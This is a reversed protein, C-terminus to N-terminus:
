GKKQKIMKRYEDLNKPGQDNMMMRVQDESMGTRKMFQVAEPTMPAPGKMDSPSDTIVTRKAQSRKAIERQEAERKLQQALNQGGLAYYAQQVTINPNRSIFETIPVKMQKIGPYDSSDALDNIQVTVRLQHMEKQQQQQQMYWQTQQEDWGNQYALREAEQQIKQQELHKMAEQPDVGLQDFFAKYPNMQTDFEQKLKEEAAERAKRKERELAKQFATKQNEPLEIHEEEYEVNSPEPEDETFEQNGTHELSDVQEQSPESGGEQEHSAADTGGMSEYPDIGSQKMQRFQELTVSETPQQVNDM